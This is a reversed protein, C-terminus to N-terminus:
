ELLSDTYKVIDGAGMMVVIASKRPGFASSCLISNITRKLDKPSPLYFVAKLKSTKLKKTQREISEALKESNASSARLRTSPDRGAVQYIDLLILADADFFAVTFEKFLAALRKAQHPQFVCILGTKPWKERIGSLTAKIETPHHAYDDYVEAKLKAQGGFGRRLRSSKIKLHGRFEMRRWAGKYHKLTQIIAHEKVGLNRSLLYIALANSVNYEGSIQLINKIRNRIAKLKEDHLSYWFVNLRKEKAIEDIKSKLNYLNKDDKNAVLIGNLKICSVFELFSNQIAKLNKYFDLHEKDINTIIAAFPSYNLFAQRYEDAEIILYRSKGNRFNSNGFEKLKTGVIVTPDLGAKVLGLSLMSTTTSKGHAGAVAITKYKKSIDGLTEAYTQTTIGLRRAKELEQNKTHAANYVVLKIQPSIYKANNGIYIKVGEKRLDQPFYPVGDTNFMSEPIDSGSVNYDHSLFWRALASTGIGGIGIFHVKYNMPSPKNPM